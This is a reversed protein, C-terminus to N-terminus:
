ELGIIYQTLVDIEAESLYSYSPMNSWPRSERPDQLHAFVFRYSDTGERSGVHMLDPGLREVGLLIPNEHVYDGSLSIPGLGVDTVIGRVAQTHCYWCGESLYLARGEAEASGEAYVRVNDGLLTGTTNIPDLSPLLWAFLAALGFLLVAGYRLRTWSITQAEGGFLLDYEPPESLTDPEAGDDEDSTRFANFVFLLQALAFVVIGIARLGFATELPVATNIFGDGTSTNTGSNSGAAWIFGAQLGGLWMGFLAISLGILSYRLHWIAAGSRAPARDNNLARYAIGFVLVTLAGFFLLYDYATLWQTYQVVGSSSRVTQLLNVLPVLLLMFAGATVFRMTVRDTIDSWRGRLALGLDVFIVLVPVVLAISFGVGLTEFWDPGPGYIFDRAGTATWILALSWFGLVSLRSSSRPDAGVLRPVLYYAVGVGAAVFWLGTISARFFSTQIAGNFGAIGPLNGAFWALCLWWLGGVFYWTPPGLREKAHAATATVAWAALVFGILVVIDALLPMELYRRGESLGAGIALTGDAVGGAILILSMAAVFPRRLHVGALRPVVFYAAGLFGITLWGYLFAATAMPVLRGYTLIQVGGNLQPFVLELAAYAGAFVSVLLFVAAVIFHWRVIRGTRRVRDPVPNPTSDEGSTEVSAIEATM